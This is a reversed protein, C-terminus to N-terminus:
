SAVLQFRGIAKNSGFGEDPFEGTRGAWWSRYGRRPSTGTTPEWVAGDFLWQIRDMLRDITTPGKAPDQHVEIVWTEQKMDDDGRSSQGEMRVFLFPKPATAANFNAIPLIATNSRQLLNPGYLATDRQLVGYIQSRIDPAAIVRVPM